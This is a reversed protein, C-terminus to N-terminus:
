RCPASKEKRATTEDHETLQTCNLHWLMSVKDRERMKATLQSVEQTLWEATREQEERVCELEQELEVTCEQVQELEARLEEM